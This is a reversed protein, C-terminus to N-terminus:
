CRLSRKRKMSSASLCFEGRAGPFSRLTWAMLDMYKGQLIMGSDFERLEHNEEEEEVLTKCELETM